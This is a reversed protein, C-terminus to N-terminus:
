PDSKLAGSHKIAYIANVDKFPNKSVVSPLNNLQPEFVEQIPLIIVM